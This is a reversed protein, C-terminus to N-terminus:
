QVLGAEAELCTLQEAQTDQVVQMEKVRLEQAETLALEAVEVRGVVVLVVVQVPTVMKDVAM